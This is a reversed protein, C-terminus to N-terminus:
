KKGEEKMLTIADKFGKKASNLKEKKDEEYLVISIYKWYLRIIENIKEKVTMQRKFKLYYYRMNRFYYYVRFSSHNTPYVYIGFFKKISRKGIEHKLFCDKIKLIKYGKLRIRKCYDFDVYDIFMKEDFLGVDKCVKLNMLSGSTICREIQIYEESILKNKKKNLDIIEPCVIAVDDNIYQVMKQLFDLQLFSDQDLTLLYNIEMSLSKELIQNLAKAIGENKENRILIVNTFKSVVKEIEDINKSNNDILIIKEAEDKYEDITKRIKDVDSNYLVIGVAFNM